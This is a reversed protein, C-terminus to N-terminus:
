FSFKQLNQDQGVHELDDIVLIPHGSTDRDSQHSSMSFQNLPTTSINLTKEAKGPSVNEVPTHLSLQGAVEM